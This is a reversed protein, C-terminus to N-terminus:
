EESIFADVCMVIQGKVKQIQLLHKFNVSKQGKPCEGQAGIPTVPVMQVITHEKGMLIIGVLNPYFRVLCKAFPAFFITKGQLAGGGM